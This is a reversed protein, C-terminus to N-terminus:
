RAELDLLYRKVGIGGPANYGTLKGDSAVVRHCPIVLLLRNRSMAAGVARSGNPNGVSKALQRYSWTKGPPIGRCRDFVQREFDTWDRDDLPVADFCDRGTCFYEELSSALCQSEESMSGEGATRQDPKTFHLERLGMESWRARMPGLPTAHLTATATELSFDM